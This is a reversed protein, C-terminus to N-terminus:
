MIREKKRWRDALATKTAIHEKVMKVFPDADFKGRVSVFDNDAESNPDDIGFGTRSQLSYEKRADELLMRDLATVSGIWREVIAPVDALTIEDVSKGYWDKLHEAVWTWEMDYYETHLRKWRAELDDLNAVRGTAVDDALRDIECKPAFMGCVDVWKGAGVSNTPRLRERLDDIGALPTEGLRHIVSNGMFKDIAMGYYERGRRLARADITMAQFAFREATAGATRELANLLKIGAMMKGVTYPSLLNFNISDLLDSDKRRDRRPWKQADRITGVSRLNVGPVLFSENRNEILYSFPLKSTDPHNVHRGMVLSFAGIKAPWLIYSDSTTKSGREVVGQHIPGLKYMHNSQNSGSGANLFSFIGAILLSSKHMTVTYPGGFIAAAEGNECKCNAFFLSDHASFLHSLVSAQGVFCHHVVAGDDVRSGSAFVFGEAIVDRGVTVFDAKSSAITGDKLRTAGKVRAYDGIIVNTITGCNTIEAARGVRGRSGRLGDAHIKVMTVLVQVMEPYHRYMAILYATQASIREYIPVERGGTENLVSVETGVGFTSDLTCVLCDINDIYVGDAIDYNAIYNAVHRIFVGNGVTVNHLTVDEIVSRRVLGGPRVFEGDLRGLRVDGSFEVQSLRSSDFSGSPVEVRTWDEAKCGRAQLEKIEEDSLRRFAAERPNQNTM